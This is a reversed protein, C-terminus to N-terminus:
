TEATIPLGISVAGVISSGRSRTGDCRTVMANKSSVPVLSIGDTSIPM